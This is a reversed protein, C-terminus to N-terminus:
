KTRHDLARTANKWVFQWELVTVLELGAGPPASAVRISTLISCHFAPNYTINFSM